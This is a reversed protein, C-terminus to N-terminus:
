QKGAIYKYYPDIFDSALGKWDSPVKGTLTERIKEAHEKCNIIGKIIKAVEFMQMDSYVPLCLIHTAAWDTNPLEPIMNGYLEQYYTTRHVPPYFYCRSIINDAILAYNLEINTLGFKDPDVIVYFYSYNTNDEIDISPLEIGDIGSLADRYNQFVWKRKAIHNSYEDILNLGIVANFESMKGNIGPGLCNLYDGIGFNRIGCIKKFLAKDNTIIAGGEGTHFIKTAHFSYVEANGLPGTEKSKYTSGFSQASDYILPIGHKEAIGSIRGHDCYSGFINVPFILSTSDTIKKEIESPCLNLTQRDIDTFVPQLNLWDVAQATAVFTYSPLIVKGSIGLAKLLVMIATTANCFLACYESNSMESIKGELARVYKGQNTFMRSQYLDQLDKLLSAPEPMMPRVLHQPTEFITKGGIIAPLSSDSM